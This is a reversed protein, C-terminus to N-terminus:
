NTKRNAHLFRSGLLDGTQYALQALGSLVQSQAQVQESRAQALSQEANLVDTYTALGQAFSAGAADYSTQAAALLTKSTELRRFAVKAAVYASWVQNAAQDQSSNLQAQAARKESEAQIIQYRRRRGDFVTWTLSVEGLWNPARVYPAPGFNTQTRLSDYGGQAQFNVKPYLASRAVKIEADAARIQGVAELLDPRQLLARDILQEASDELENREPIASISKVMLASAPKLGVSAELDSLTTQENGLTNELNYAAQERQAQANLYNPLTALGHSLQERVQQETTEADKLSARAAEVLGKSSLVKYYSTTVSLAIQEHTDNLATGTVFLNAQAAEITGRREGFDLLLYNLALLPNVITEDGRIIGNPFSPALSPFPTFRRAQSANVNIALTPYVASRAIGLEAAQRKVQEWAVRSKPNQEEAIDILEYLAYTKSPDATFYQRPNNRLDAAYDITAAPKWDASHSAPVQGPSFQAGIRGTMLLCLSILTLPQRCM